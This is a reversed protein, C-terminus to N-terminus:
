EQEEWYRLVDESIKSADFRFHGTIADKCARKRLVDEERLPQGSNHIVYPEGDRNRKDSIIGIHRSDFVVIDGPQWEEIEDINLTLNTAYKSFFVELNGVRRFDINSDPYEIHYLTDNYLRIDEDVMERLNYGANRFARWIVDTCVGIDAPPYGTDWYRGDYTPHNEADIRAGLLIDTYDDVGNHNADVLSVVPTIGFDEATYYPKHGQYWFFLFPLSFCFLFAVVILIFFKHKKIFKM